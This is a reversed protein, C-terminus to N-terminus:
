QYCIPKNLIQFIHGIQHDYKYRACVQGYCTFYFSCNTTNYVFIYLFNPDINQGLTNAMHAINLIHSNYKETIYTLSTYLAGQQITPSTLKMHSMYIHMCRRYLFTVTKNAYKYRVYKQCYCSISTATSQTKYICFHQTYLGMYYM